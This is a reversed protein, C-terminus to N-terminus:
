LHLIFDCSPSMKGCRVKSYMLGDVPCLNIWSIGPTVGRVGIVQQCRQRMSLSYKQIITQPINIWEQVLSQELEQLPYRRVRRNLEDWLYEIVNIPRTIKFAITAPLYEAATDAGTQAIRKFIPAM